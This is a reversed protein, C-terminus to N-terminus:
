NRVSTPMSNATFPLARGSTSKLMPSDYAPSRGMLGSSFSGLLNNKQNKGDSFGAAFFSIVMQAYRHPLVLSLGLQCIWPQIPSRSAARQISKQLFMTREDQVIEIRISVCGPGKMHCDPVYWGKALGYEYTQGRPVSCSRNLV